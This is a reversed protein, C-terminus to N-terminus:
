KKSIKLNIKWREEYSIITEEEASQNLLEFTTTSKICWEDNEQFLQMHHLFFDWLWTKMDDACSFQHYTLVFSQM